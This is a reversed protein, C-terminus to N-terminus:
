TLPCNLLRYAKTGSPAFSVAPFAEVRIQRDRLNDIAPENAVIATVTVERGIVASLLKSLAGTSEPTDKTFVAKFVNDRCIDIVDDNENIKIM